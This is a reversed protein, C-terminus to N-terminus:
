APVREGSRSTQRIEAWAKRIAEETRDLLEECLEPLLLIGPKYQLVRPDLTSFIAWVGNEYLHRMVYKAGQPHAFELGMVVGNQRIGVFWEPYDAQIERLGRGILDSIYHVMSRTEPRNCVELAKLAAICGLEAGGFTSIHGFGDESLWGAAQESVLVASIPYMGGSIGKGTVLIDPAIGHKTIAWLEGTRMLGTQVEDAIYLADARECLRKVEELYGTDPLPFGYTAPITEMIVAAVDRGRLADEMSALDNFPVHPFEEPRDALFLKSFREDGTAVALGTHGHYAKVISVVKRKQTAHRATKIAIDIAEGGGSGYVVKTLGDPATSVLAEALATRALSPFHHNGIDFHAMAQTVAQVVEANRHGLNYTGGNLHVDLLRKGSMDYIFYEERRDIVLPVGAEVWFDTKGPNWYERSKELMEEKSAFSFEGYDFSM